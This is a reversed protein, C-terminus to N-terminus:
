VSSRSASGSTGVGVGAALLSGVAGTFLLSTTLIKLKSKM